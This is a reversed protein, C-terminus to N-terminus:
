RVFLMPVECRETRENTTCQLMGLSLGPHAVDVEGADDTEESQEDPYQQEGHAQVRASTPAKSITLPRLNQRTKCSHEAKCNQRYSQQCEQPGSDAVLMQQHLNLM